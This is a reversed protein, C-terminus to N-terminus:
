FNMGLIEGFRQLKSVRSLHQDIILSNAIRIDVSGYLHLRLDQELKM